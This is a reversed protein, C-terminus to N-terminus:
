AQGEFDCYYGAPCEYCEFAGDHDAYFGIPCLKCEAASAAGIMDQFTGAPCPEPNKKTGTPCYHGVSCDSCGTHKDYWYYGAPCEKNKKQMKVANSAAVFILAVAFKTNM